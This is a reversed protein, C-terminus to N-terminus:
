KQGFCVPLYRVNQASYKSNLIMMLQGPQHLRHAREKDQQNSTNGRLVKLPREDQSRDIPNDENEPFIIIKKTQM